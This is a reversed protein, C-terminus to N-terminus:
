FLQSSSGLLMTDPSIIPKMELEREWKSGEVLWLLSVEKVIEKNNKPPPLIIPPYKLPCTQSLNDM